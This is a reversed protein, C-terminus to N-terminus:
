GEEAIIGQANCVLEAFKTITLSPSLLQQFTIELALERFIWNRLEAGIMSDIGYSAISRGANDEEGFNAEEVLLVRALKTIFHDCVLRVAKTPSEMGAARLRQVISGTEDEIGRDGGGYVNMSHVLTSFRPDASWFADVKGEAQRSIKYLEAADLGVVLHDMQKAQDQMQHQQEIIAVQFADLLAEEDIGYMGKRNLSGELGLNQAVIGVGLIMPLILSCAPKGQSRRLRAIADMYSNGAAYNSQAPTGLIGSVSSTMLFFDLDLGSTVEHLHKSGLVKPRISTTWHEFTMNHFLGDQMDILM